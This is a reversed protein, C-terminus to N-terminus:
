NSGFPTPISQPYTQNSEPPLFPGIKATCASQKLFTRRACSETLSGSLRRVAESGAFVANSPNYPHRQAGTEHYSQRSSRRM